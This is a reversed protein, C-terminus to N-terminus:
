KVLEQIEKEKQVQFRNFDQEFLKNQEVLFDKLWAQERVESSEVYMPNKAINHTLLYYRAAIARRRQSAERAAQVDELIWTLSLGCLNELETALKM